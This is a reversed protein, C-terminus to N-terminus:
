RTEKLRNPRIDRFLIAAETSLNVRIALQPFSTCHAGRELWLQNVSAIRPLVSFLASAAFLASFFCM